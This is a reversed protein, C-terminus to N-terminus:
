LYSWLSTIIMSLPFLLLELSFQSHFSLHFPLLLSVNFNEIASLIEKELSFVQSEKPTVSVGAGSEKM